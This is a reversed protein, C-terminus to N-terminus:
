NIPEISIAIVEADGNLIIDSLYDPSQIGEPLMDVEICKQLDASGYCAKRMRLDDDIEYDYRIIIEARVKM